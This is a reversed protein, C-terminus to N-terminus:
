SALRLLRWLSIWMKVLVIGIRELPHEVRDLWATADARM